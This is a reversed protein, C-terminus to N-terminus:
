SLTNYNVTGGTGTVVSGSLRAQMTGNFPGFFDDSFTITITPNASGNQLRAATVMLTMLPSTASGSLPKTLGSSTTINWSADSFTGIVSGGGPLTFLVPGSGDDITMSAAQAVRTLGMVALAVALIRLKNNM